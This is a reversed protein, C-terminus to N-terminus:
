RCVKEKTEENGERKEIKWREVEFSGYWIIEKDVYKRRQRRM